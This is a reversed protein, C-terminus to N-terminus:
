YLTESWTTYTVLVCVNRLVHASLTRLSVFGTRSCSFCAHHIVENRTDANHGATGLELVWEKYAEILGPGLFAKCHKLVVFHFLSSFELLLSSSPHPYRPGGHISSRVARNTWSHSRQQGPRTGLETRLGATTFAWFIYFSYTTVPEHFRLARYLTDLESALFSATAPSRAQWSFPSLRSFVMAM